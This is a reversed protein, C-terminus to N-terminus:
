KIFSYKYSLFSLLINNDCDKVENVLEISKTETNFITVSRDDNNKIFFRVKGDVMVFDGEKFKKACEISAM